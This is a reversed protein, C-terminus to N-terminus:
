IIIYNNHWILTSPKRILEWYSASAVNSCNVAGLRQVVCLRYFYTTRAAVTKDVFNAANKNSSSFAVPDAPYSPNSNKSSKVLKYFQFNDSKCPSWNLIIANLKEDKRASLGTSCTGSVFETSPKTTTTTTTPTTTKTSETTTPVPYSVEGEDSESTEGDITEIGTELDKMEKDSLEKLEIANGDDKKNFVVASLTVGVLFAVLVIIIHESKIKM